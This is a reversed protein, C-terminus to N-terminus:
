HPLTLLDENLDTRHHVPGAYLPYTKAWDDYRKEALAIYATRCLHIVRTDETPREMGLYFRWIYGPSWGCLAPYPAYGVKGPNNRVFDTLLLPGTYGWPKTSPNIVRGKAEEHLRAVVDTGKKALFNNNYCDPWAVQDVKPWDESVVLDETTMLDWAPKLSITDLGLILGGHHYAIEYALVDYIHAEQQGKLWWPVEIQEFFVDPEPDPKKGVYWLVIERGHVKATRLARRYDPILDGRTLIFHVTNM